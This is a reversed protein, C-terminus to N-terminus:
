VRRLGEQGTARQVPDAHPRERPYTIYKELDMTQLNIATIKGEGIANTLFYKGPV